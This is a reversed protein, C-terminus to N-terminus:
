SYLLPLGEKVYAPLNKEGALTKFFDDDDVATIPDLKLAILKPPAAKLALPGKAAAMTPRGNMPLHPRVDMGTPALEDLALSWIVPQDFTARMAHPAAGFKMKPLDHLAKTLRTRAQSLSIAAVDPDETVQALNLIRKEGGVTTSEGTVGFSKMLGTTGSRPVGNIMVLHVSKETAKLLAGYPDAPKGGIVMLDALKGAELSGLHQDWSLIAAPNTTALGVIESDSLMGHANQSFLHAVKLEGLLNKSGSPSWDSGLGMRVGAQRAAAVDATGGYLLLNSLPSWIMSAGKGAMVEFDPKQLATCHIGALSPAIAWEGPKFQLSLFHKRASDDV